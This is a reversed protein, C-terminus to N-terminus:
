ELLYRKLEEKGRGSEKIIANVLNKYEGINEFQSLIIKKNALAGGRKGMYDLHSSWVWNEARTIRHIEANGNIYGSLWLFYSDTKVHVAKYAGQWLSGSRKHRHNFYAAYGGAIRKMFASVGGSRLQRALLHYHNPNLCYTIIEVLKSRDPSRTAVLAVRDRFKNKKDKERLYKEYFGGHCDIQNFERMSRLFRVYDYKDLFVERKDVGRNYIHYFEGTQFQFKRM